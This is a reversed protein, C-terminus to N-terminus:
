SRADARPRLVRLDHKDGGIVSATVEPNHRVLRVIFARASESDHYSLFHFLRSLTFLDHKKGTYNAEESDNALDNLAEDCIVELMSDFRGWDDSPILAVCKACKSSNTMVERGNTQM